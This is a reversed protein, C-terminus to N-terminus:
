ASVGVAYRFNCDVGLAFVRETIAFGTNTEYDPAVHSRMPSAYVAPWGIVAVLDPEDGTEVTGTALVPTGNGTVLRGSERVLVGAAFAVAAALRSLILVPQGVYNVDAYEEAEGIAEVINAATGPSAADGAWAALVAEVARDELGEFKRRSLAEYSEESDGGLWCTVGTYRAFPDGIPTYDNFGEGEKPPGQPPVGPTTTTVAVAPSAGGTLSSTATMQPLNQDALLGGFTAIYPTGPGPGGTVIVDGPEINSLAVLAAQVAAANANWAIAATTQGDFTLTFDGGTPGGSITITQVEDVGLSEAFCGARTTELSTGCTADEWVLGEQVNVGLRGEEIFSGVIDKIGGARPRRSPATIPVAM